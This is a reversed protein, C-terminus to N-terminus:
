EENDIAANLLANISDPTTNLSACECLPMDNDDTVQTLNYYKRTGKKFSKDVLMCAHMVDIDGSALKNKIANFIADRKEDHSLSLLYVHTEGNADVVSIKLRWQGKADFQSEVDDIARICFVVENDALVVAKIYELDVIGAEKKIDKLTFAM